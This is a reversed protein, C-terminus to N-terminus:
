PQLVDRKSVFITEIVWEARCFNVIHQYEEAHRQGARKILARNGGEVLVWGGYSGNGNDCNTCVAAYRDEM